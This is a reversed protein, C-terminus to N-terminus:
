HKRGHRPFPSLIWCLKLVNIMHVVNPKLMEANATSKYVLCGHVWQACSCPMMNM